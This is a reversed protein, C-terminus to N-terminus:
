LRKLHNLLKSGRRRCVQWIYSSTSHFLLCNCQFVPWVSCLLQKKLSAHFCIALIFWCSPLSGIRQRALYCLAPHLSSLRGGNGLWFLWSWQCCYFYFSSQKKMMNFAVISAWQKPPQSLWLSLVVLSWMGAICIGQPFSLKQKPSSACLPLETTKWSLIIGQMWPSMTLPWKLKMLQGYCLYSQLPSFSFIYCVNFILTHFCSGLDVRSWSSVPM